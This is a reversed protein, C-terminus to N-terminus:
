LFFDADLISQREFNKEIRDTRLRRDKIVSQDVRPRDGVHSQLLIRTFALLKYYTTDIGLSAALIQDERIARFAPGASTRRTVRM